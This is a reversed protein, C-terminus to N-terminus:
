AALKRVCIKHELVLYKQTPIFVQQVPLLVNELELLHMNLVQAYKNVSNEMLLHEMFQIIPKVPLPLVNLSVAKLSLTVTRVQQASTIVFKIPAMSNTTTQIKTQLQHTSASLSVIITLGDGTLLPQLVNKIAPVTTTSCQRSPVPPLVRDPPTIPLNILHALKPVLHEKSTGHVPLIASM